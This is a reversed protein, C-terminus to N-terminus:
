RPICMKLHFLVNKLFLTGTTPSFFILIHEIIVVRFFYLTTIRLFFMLIYMILIQALLCFLNFQHCCLVFKKFHLKEELKIDFTSTHGSYFIVKKQNKVCLTSSQAGGTYSELHVVDASM